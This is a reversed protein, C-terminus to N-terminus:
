IALAHQIRMEGAHWLRSRIFDRRSRVCMKMYQDRRGEDEDILYVLAETFVEAEATSGAGHRSIFRRVSGPDSQGSLIDNLERWCDISLDSGGPDLAEALQFIMSSFCPYRVRNDLMLELVQGATTERSVRTTKNSM